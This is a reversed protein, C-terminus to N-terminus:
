KLFYAAAILGAIILGLNVTQQISKVVGPEDPKAKPLTTGPDQRIRNWWKDQAGKLTAIVDLETQSWPLSKGAKAEADLHNKIDEVALATTGLVARLDADTNANIVAVQGIKDVIHILTLTAAAIGAVAVIAEVVMMSGVNPSAGPLAPAAYAAPQGDLTSVIPPPAPPGGPDGPLATGGTMAVYLLFWTGQVQQYARWRVDDSFDSQTRTGLVTVGAQMSPPKNSSADGVALSAVVLARVVRALEEQTLSPFPSSEVLAIAHDMAATNGDSDRYFWTAM